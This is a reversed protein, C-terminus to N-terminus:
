REVKTAEESPRARDGYRDRARGSTSGSTRQGLTSDEVSIGNAAGFTVLGEFRRVTAPGIGKVRTLDPLSRFPGHAHREELIARARVTGIGPLESLLAEDARNVDIPYLDVVAAAPSVTASDVTTQAEISSSDAIANAREPAVGTERSREPERFFGIGVGLAIFLLINREERTM